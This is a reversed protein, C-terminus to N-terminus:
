RNAYNNAWPSYLFVQLATKIALIEAINSDVEGLPGYFVGWVWGNSDRLVGSDYRNGTRSPLGCFNFPTAVLRKQAPM